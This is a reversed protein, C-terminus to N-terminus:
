GGSVQPEAVGVLLWRIIGRNPVDDHVEAWCADASGPTVGGAGVLANYTEATWDGADAPTQDLSAVNGVDLVVGEAEIVGQDDPHVDVVQAVYYGQLAEIRQDLSATTVLNGEGDFVNAFAFLELGFEIAAGYGGIGLTSVDLSDAQDIVDQPLTIGYECGMEFMDDAEMLYTGSYVFVGLARETASISMTFDAPVGNADVWARICSLVDASHAAPDVDNPDVTISCEPPPVPAGGGPVTDYTPGGGLAVEITFADGTDNSIVLDEITMGVVGAGGGSRAMSDMLLAGGWDQSEAGGASTWTPNANDVSPSLALEDLTNAGPESVGEDIMDVEIPIDPTLDDQLNEFFSCGMTSLVLLLTSVLM